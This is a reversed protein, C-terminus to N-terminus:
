LASFWLCVVCVPEMKLVPLTEIAGVVWFNGEDGGGPRHATEAVSRVTIRLERRTLSFSAKAYEQQLGGCQQAFKRYSANQRSEPM